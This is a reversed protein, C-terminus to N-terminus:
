LAGFQDHDLLCKCRSLSTSKGVNKQWGGGPAFFFAGHGVTFPANRTNMCGHRGGTFCLMVPANSQCQGFFQAVVFHELRTRLGHVEVIDRWFGNPIFVALACATAVQVDRTQAIGLQVLMGFLPGHRM